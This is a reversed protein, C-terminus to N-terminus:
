KKQAVTWSRFTSTTSTETIDWVFVEDAGSDFLADIAANVEETVNRVALDYEAMGPKLGIYPEGVVGHAGELDVAILYKM